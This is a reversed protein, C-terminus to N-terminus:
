IQFNCDSIRITHYQNGLRHHAHVQNLTSSGQFQLLELTCLLSVHLQSLDLFHMRTHGQHTGVAIGELLIMRGDFGAEMKGPHAEPCGEFGAM